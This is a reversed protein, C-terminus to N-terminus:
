LPEARVLVTHSVPAGSVVCHDISQDPNTQNITAIDQSQTARAARLHPSYYEHSHVSPFGAM